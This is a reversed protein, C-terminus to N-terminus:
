TKKEIFSSFVLPLLIPALIIATPLLSKIFLLNSLKRGTAIELYPDLFFFSSRKWSCLLVLQDCAVLGVGEVQGWGM